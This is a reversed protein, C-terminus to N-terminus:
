GELGRTAGLWPTAADWARLRADLDAAVESADAASPPALQDPDAALDYFRRPAAGLARGDRPLGYLHTATRLGTGDGETEIVAAGPLAAGGRVAPLLSAGHLHPPLGLGAADLLTPALDVLSAVGGSAVAGAAVGPGRLLMPVRCSEEHLTGKGLLGHSGLLDGHDSTFLVLTNEALGAADLAALVRGVADDVWTTAGWYLATLAALDFDDPLRDAHPMHCLYHRYDWLYSKYTEAHAADDFPVPVNPRLRVAAPDYMTLYREPMDALPMHPPCINYYLFWPRGGSEAPADDLFRCVEGAEFEVGFGPPSFEPGGGETYLQGSNAHHTRPILYREFGLEDPWADVHWKGVCRTHYGGARLLEPLTAEPMVRRGGPSRPPAYADFLWGRSGDADREFRLATNGARGICTRAHQGSLMVSRAPLCVPANSVATEVRTGSAALADLNPTRVSPHGYCGLECWRLEDCVILLLNTPRPMDTEPTPAPLHGGNLSEPFGAQTKAQTRPRRDGRSM